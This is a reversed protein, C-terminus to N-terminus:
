NQQIRGDISFFHKELIVHDETDQAWQKIEAMPYEWTCIYSASPVDFEKPYDPCEVVRVEFVKKDQLLQHVEAERDAVVQAVTPNLHMMAKGFVGGERVDFDINKLVTDIQGETYHYIKPIDGITGVTDQRYGILKGHKYFAFAIAQGKAAKM